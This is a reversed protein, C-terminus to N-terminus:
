IWIDGHFNLEILSSPKRQHSTSSYQRVYPCAFHVNTVGLHSRRTESRVYNVTKVLFKEDRFRTVIDVPWRTNMLTVTAYM